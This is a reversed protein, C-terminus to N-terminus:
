IINEFITQFFNKKINQFLNKHLLLDVYNKDLFCKVQKQM